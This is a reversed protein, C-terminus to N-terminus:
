RNLVSDLKDERGAMELNEIVEAIVGPPGSAIFEVTGFDHPHQDLLQFVLRNIM